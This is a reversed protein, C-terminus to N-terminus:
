GAQRADLEAVRKKPAVMRWAAEMQERLMGPPRCFLRRRVHFATTGNSTGEDVGPLALAVRRVEDFNM